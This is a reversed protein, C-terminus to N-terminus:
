ARVVLSVEEATVPVRVVWHGVSDQDVPHEPRGCPCSWPEGSDGIEPPWFKLELLKPLPQDSDGLNIRREHGADIINSPSIGVYSRSENPNDNIAHAHARYTLPLNFTYVRNHRGSQENWITSFAGLHELDPRYAHHDRDREVKSVEAASVASQQAIVLANDAVRANRRGYAFAVVLAGIAIGANVADIINGTDV